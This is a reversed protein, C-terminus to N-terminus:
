YKILVQRAESRSKVTELKQDGTSEFVSVSSFDTVWYDYQCLRPKIKSVLDGEQINNIVTILPSIEFYLVCPQIM